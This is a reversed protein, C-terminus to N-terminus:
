CHCTWQGATSFVQTSDRSAVSLTSHIERSVTEYSGGRLIPATIPLPVQKGPISKRHTEGPNIKTKNVSAASTSLSKSLKPNSLASKRVSDGGSSPVPTVPKAEEIVAFIPPLITEEHVSELISEDDSEGLDDDEDDDGITTMSIQPEEFFSRPGNQLQDLVLSVSDAFDTETIVPVLRVLTSRHILPLTRVYM